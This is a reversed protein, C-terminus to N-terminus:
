IENDHVRLIINNKTNRNPQIKYELQRKDNPKNEAEDNTEIIISQVREFGNKDIKSNELGSTTSLKGIKHAIDLGKQMINKETQTWYPSMDKLGNQNFHTKFGGQNPQLINKIEETTATKLYANIEPVSVHYILPNQYLISTDTNLHENANFLNRFNNNVEEKTNDPVKKVPNILPDTLQKIMADSRKAQSTQQIQTNANANNKPQINLKIVANSDESNTQKVLKGDSYVDIHIDRKKLDNTQDNKYRGPYKDASRIIEGANAKLDININKRESLNNSEASDRRLRLPSKQIDFNQYNIMDIVPEMVRRRYMYPYIDNEPREESYGEAEDEDLGVLYKPKFEQLSFYYINIYHNILIRSM